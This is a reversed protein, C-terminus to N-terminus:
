HASALHRPVPFLLLTKLHASSHTFFLVRIYSGGALLHVCFAGLHVGHLGVPAESVPSEWQVCKRCPASHPAKRQHEYEQFLLPIQIYGIDM